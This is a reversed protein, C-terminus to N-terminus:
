KPLSSGQHALTHFVNKATIESMCLCPAGPGRCRRCDVGQEQVLVSVNKGVPAWRGPHIPRIPPYIGVAHKGLASAIHLPGTSCAVLADCNQVFGMLQRLSLKGTMDFVKNKRKTLASRFAQGESETGTLFIIHKKEDLLDVLEAFNDVPWNRASNRSGPHLIIKKRPDNLLVSLENPWFGSVRLGYDVKSGLMKEDPKSILGARVALDVNLEAEHRSSNKRSLWPRRNCTWLHYLRHATGIRLPVGAKCLLAAIKRNPFVHLVADLNLSRFFELNEADTRKELVTWNLFEDIHACSKLIDETYGSGLFYIKISPSEKKIQAVLPLTLLVDGIADTRSILIRPIKGSKLLSVDAM